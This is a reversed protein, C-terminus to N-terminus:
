VCEGLPRSVNLCILMILNYNLPPCGTVGIFIYVSTRKRRVRVRHRSALKAKRGVHICKVATIKQKYVLIKIKEM